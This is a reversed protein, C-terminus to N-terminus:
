LLFYGRRSSRNEPVPSENLFSGMRGRSGSASYLIQPKKIEVPTLVKSELGSIKLKTPLHEESSALLDYLTELSSTYCWDLSGGLQLFHEAFARHAQTEIGKEEAKKLQILISKLDMLYGEKMLERKHADSEAKADDVWKRATSLYRGYAGQLKEALIQPSM